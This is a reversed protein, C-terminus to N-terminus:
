PMIHGFNGELGGRKMLPAPPGSSSPSSPTKQNPQKETGELTGLLYWEFDNPVVFSDTPLAQKAMDLPKVLHPTVIIILETENRQYNTSRFLAGLIPIDGLVPYKRVIERVDDRLLGAIAFSQGDGLEVTTSARRTTLSPVIYGQLAIARSFDLDSVEPAVLMSIKGNSLVTPTFNLAM